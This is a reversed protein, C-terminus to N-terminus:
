RRIFNPSIMSSKVVITNDFNDIVSTIILIFNNELFLMYYLHDILWSLM